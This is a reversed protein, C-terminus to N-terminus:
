MKGWRFMGIDRRPEDHCEGECWVSRISSQAKSKFEPTVECMNHARCAHESALSIVENETEARVLFDCDAGAERCSLERYERQAM